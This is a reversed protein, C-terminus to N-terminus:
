SNTDTCVRLEDQRGRRWAMQTVTSAGTAPLRSRSSRVFSSSSAAASKLVDAATFRVPGSAGSAGCSSFDCPIACPRPLHTKDDIMTPLMFRRRRYLLKGESKQM